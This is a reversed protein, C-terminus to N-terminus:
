ASGLPPRKPPVQIQVESEDRHIRISEWWRNLAEPDAEREERTPAADPRKRAPTPDSHDESEPRDADEDEGSVHWPLFNGCTRCIFEPSEPGVLCGGLVLQGKEV